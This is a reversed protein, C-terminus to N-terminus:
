LHSGTLRAQATSKYSKLRLFIVWHPKPKTVLKHTNKDILRIFNHPYSVRKFKSEAFNGLFKGAFSEQSKAKLPSIKIGAEVEQTSHLLVDSINKKLTVNANLMTIEGGLTVTAADDFAQRRTHSECLGVTM